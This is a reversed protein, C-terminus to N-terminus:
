AEASHLAFDRAQRSFRSRSNDGGPKLRCPKGGDAQSHDATRAPPHEPYQRSREALRREVRQCAKTVRAEGTQGIKWEARSRDLRNGTSSRDHRSSFGGKDGQADEQRDQRGVRIAVAPPSHQIQDVTEYSVSTTQGSGDADYAVTECAYPLRTGVTVHLRKNRRKQLASQLKPLLGRVWQQENM